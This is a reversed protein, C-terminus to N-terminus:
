LQVTIKGDIWAAVVEVNELTHGSPPINSPQGAVVYVEYTSGAVYFGRMKYYVILSQDYTSSNITQTPRSISGNVVIGPSLDLALSM